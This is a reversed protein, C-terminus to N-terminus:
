LHGISCHAWWSAETRLNEKGIRRRGKKAPRWVSVRHFKELRKPLWSLNAHPYATKFFFLWYIYIYLNEVHKVWKVFVWVGLVGDVVVVFFFVPSCCVVKGLM